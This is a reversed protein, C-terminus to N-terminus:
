ASPQIRISHTERDNTHWVTLIQKQLDSESTGDSLKVEYGTPYQFRPAFIETPASVAPDHRFEFEFIRSALDFQMRLPEGATKRAHPRLVAELARGGSYINAPDKQADRRFLSMDENNWMEERENALDAATYNWVQSGLFNADMIANYYTDLAVACASYDGTKLGHRKNLKFDVGFEGIIVPINGMREYTTQKIAAIQKVFHQRVEKAGKVLEMTAVDVTLEPNFTNFIFMVFDYYHAAHVVGGPDDPGWHPFDLSNNPPGELFILAEPHVSRIETIFRKIFPKLYDNSFHVKRGSAQEFYDPRLLRPEGNKDTWLGNQKWVCEFDKKWLSVGDPNITAQNMKPESVGWEFFNVQQPHGSGLLIAQFPTPMAGSNHLGRPPETLDKTGILGRVPENFTDYGVVNPLDKLRLAVRKIANIYHSQLFEQVPVGNIKTRPAFDNGGFFLTFMTLAGLKGYNTPWTFPPPPDGHTAHTWAAGTQSLKTLDIGIMELTWGPAGDGGTWRSWADQHPDIYVNIGYESAKQIVAYLYDLYEKDYEGPGAHEIAEWTIIFRLFTMGWERLRQFHEDAEELVFPRNVYSVKRYNFFQENRYTAGNPYYPIKCNEAVNAGHLILTRGQDDKIWRGDVRM